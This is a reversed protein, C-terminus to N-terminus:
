PLGIPVGDLCTAGSEKMPAFQFVRSSAENSGICLAHDTQILM